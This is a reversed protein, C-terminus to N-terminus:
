HLPVNFDFRFGTLNNQIILERLDQRVFIHVPSEPIRFIPYKAAVDRLLHVPYQVAYTGNERPTWDDNDVKSHERDLANVSNLIQGIFTDHNQFSSSGYSVPLFQISDPFSAEFMEQFRKSFLPFGNLSLMFDRSRDPGEPCKGIMKKWNHLREGDCFHQSACDSSPFFKIFWPHNKEDTPFDPLLKAILSM